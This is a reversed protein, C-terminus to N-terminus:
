SLTEELSECEKIEDLFLYLAPQSEQMPQFTYKGWTDVEGTFRGDMIGSEVDDDYGNSRCEYILAVTCGYREAIYEHTM